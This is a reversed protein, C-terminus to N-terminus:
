GLEKLGVKTRESEYGQFMGDDSMVESIARM